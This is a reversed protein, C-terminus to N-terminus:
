ERSAMAENEGLRGYFRCGQKPSRMKRGTGHRPGERLMELLHDDRGEKCVELSPPESSTFGGLRSNAVDTLREEQHHASAQRMVAAAKPGRESRLALSDLGTWMWAEGELPDGVGSQASSSVRDCGDLM